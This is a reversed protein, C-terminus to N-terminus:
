GIFAAMGLGWQEPLHATEDDGDDDGDHRRLSHKWNKGDKMLAQLQYDSGNGLPTEVQSEPLLHTDLRDRHGGVLLGQPSQLSGRLEHPIMYQTVSKPNTKAFREIAQLRCYM